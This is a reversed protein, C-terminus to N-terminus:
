GKPVHTPLCLHFRRPPVKGLPPAGSVTGSPLRPLPRPDPFTLVAGWPWATPLAPTSICAALSPRATGGVVRLLASAPLHPWAHDAAPRHGPRCSTAM